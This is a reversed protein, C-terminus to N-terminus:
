RHYIYMYVIIYYWKTKLYNIPSYANVVHEERLLITKVWPSVIILSSINSIAPLEVDKVETVIGEVIVNM